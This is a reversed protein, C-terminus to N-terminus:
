LHAREYRAALSKPPRRSTANISMLLALQRAVDRDPPISLPARRAAFTRGSTGRGAGRSRHSDDEALAAYSGLRALYLWDAGAFYVLTMIAMILMIWGPALHHALKLPALVSLFMTGAWVVRLGVFGIGLGFLRGAQRSFFDVSQALADAAAARNRICFLPALGFFWNLLAGFTSALGIGFALCFAAMVARQDSAM